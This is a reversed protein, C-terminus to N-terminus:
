GRSGFGDALRTALYEAERHLANSFAEAAPTLPLDKRQILCIAPAGIEDDLDLKMLLEATVNAVLWPEPLLAILDTNALLSVLAMLSECQIDARPVPLERSRFVDDLESSRPGAAGTLVWDADVLEALSRAGGLPHGKRCVVARRHGFMPSVAFESGLSKAPEPALVFDLQSDRLEPLMVPLLGEVIRVEAHPYSRRFVKLANPLFLLSPTASLALAVRGGQSGLLQSVEDQGRSLENAAVEARRLFRRGMENLVAGQATRQFLPTGLEKELQRVSKTLAPQSLGLDRAAQHISGARAVAVFDRLQNFKM